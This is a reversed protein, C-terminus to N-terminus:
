YVMIMFSSAGPFETSKVRILFSWYESLYPCGILGGVFFPKTSTKMEESFTGAGSSSTYIKVDCGTKHSCYRMTLLCVM